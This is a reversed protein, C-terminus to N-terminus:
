KNMKEKEKEPVEQGPVSPCHFRGEDFLCVTFDGEEFV